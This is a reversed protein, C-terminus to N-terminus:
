VEDEQASSEPDAFSIQVGKCVAAVIITIGGVAFFLGPAANILQGSVTTSNVSLSAQGTVGLIFLRYGLFITGAGVVIPLLKFTYYLVFVMPNDSARSNVKYLMQMPVNQMADGRLLLMTLGCTAGPVWFKMSGCHPCKMHNFDVRNQDEPVISIHCHPCVTNLSARIKGLDIKNRPM